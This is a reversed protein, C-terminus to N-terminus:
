QCSLRYFRSPGSPPNTDLLTITGGTGLTPPLLPMWAPDSLANKYELTYSLGSVGNLSLCVNSATVSLGNVPITPPLLVTASATATNNGPVPDLTISAVTVTNKIAHLTVPIVALALNASSGASLAGLSWTVTSNAFHGGASASSFLVNTPLFDTVTVNNAKQFGSNTVMVSYVFVQGLGALGQAPSLSIALDTASDCCQIGDQVSVTDIYWGLGGYYNGIDTGFRWKFQVSQGAATAPLNVATTIFGGSLGGWVLRGALPNDTNTSAITKNYPGSVFTGGAALIDAFQSAGIRIELVGGDYATTRDSPDTETNFNNRFTM